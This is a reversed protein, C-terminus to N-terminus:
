PCGGACNGGHLGQTTILNMRLSENDPLQLASQFTNLAVFPQGGFLSPSEVISPLAAVAQSVSREDSLLPKRIEQVPGITTATQYRASVRIETPTTRITLVQRKGNYLLASVNMPQTHAKAQTKGIPKSMAHNFLASQLIDQNVCASLTAIGQHETNSLALRSSTMGPAVPQVPFPVLGGYVDRERTITLPLISSTVGQWSTMGHITGGDDTVPCEAAAALSAPNVILILSLAALLSPLLPSLWRNEAQQANQTFHPTM